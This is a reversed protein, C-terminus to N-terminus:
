RNDGNGHLTNAAKRRTIKAVNMQAIQSLPYGLVDALNALYWLVDGCEAAIAACTDADAVGDHDRLVKKVKEAVEGAEGCLALALYGLKNDQPYIATGLAAQQYQDFDM